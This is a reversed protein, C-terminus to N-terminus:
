GKSLLGIASLRALTENDLGITSGLYMFDMTVGFMRAVIAVEHLEPSRFGSRWASATRESVHLGTELEKSSDGWRQWSMADIRWAMLIRCAQEYNANEPVCPRKPPETRRKRRGMGCMRHPSKHPTMGGTTRNVIRVSQANRPVHVPVVPDPFNDGPQATLLDNELPKAEGLLSRVHPHPDPAAEDGGLLEDGEYM